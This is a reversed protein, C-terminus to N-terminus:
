GKSGTKSYDTDHFGSGRFKLGAPFSMIRKAPKGCEKCSVIRTPTNMPLLQSTIIGCKEDSCKFEYTPM